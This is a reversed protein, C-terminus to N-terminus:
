DYGRGYGRLRALPLGRDYCERLRRPRLCAAAGGRPQGSSGGPLPHRANGRQATGDRGPVGLTPPSGLGLMQGSHLFGHGLSERGFVWLCGCPRLRGRRRALHGAPRGILRGDARFCSVVGGASKGGGQLAARGPVCVKGRQHLELLRLEAPGGPKAARAGDPIQAVHGLAARRLGREVVGVAGGLGFDGQAAGALREEVDFEPGPDQAIDGADVEAGVDQAAPGTQGHPDGGCTEGPHHLGLAFVGARLGGLSCANGVGEGGHPRRRDLVHSGGCGRAAVPELQVQPRVPFPGEFQDLAGSCGAVVGEHDGHVGGDGAGAEAVDAVAHGDRGRQGELGDQVRGVPRRPPEVEEGM